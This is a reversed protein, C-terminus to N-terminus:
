DMQASIYYYCLLIRLVLCFSIQVYTLLILWTIFLQRHASFCTKSPINFYVFWDTEAFLSVYELICITECDNRYIMKVLVLM